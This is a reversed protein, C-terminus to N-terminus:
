ESTNSKQLSQLHIFSLLKDKDEENIVLNRNGNKLKNLQEESFSNGSSLYQFHKKNKEFYLYLDFKIKEESKFHQASVSIKDDKKKIKVDPVKASIFYFNFARGKYSKSGIFKPNLNNFYDKDIEFVSKADIKKGQRKELYSKIEIIKGDVIIYGSQDELQFPLINYNECYQDVEKSSLGLKEMLKQNESLYNNKNETHNSVNLNENLKINSSDNSLDRGKLHIIRGSEDREKRKKSANVIGDKKLILVHGKRKKKKPNSPIILSSKGKEIQFYHFDKEQGKLTSLSAGVEEFPHVDLNHQESLNTFLLKSYNKEIKDSILIMAPKQKKLFLYLNKVSSFVKVKTNNKKFNKITELVSHTNKNSVFLAVLNANDPNTKRAADM